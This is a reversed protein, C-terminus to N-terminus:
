RGVKREGKLSPILFFLVGVVLVAGLLGDLIFGSNSYYSASFIPPFFPTGYPVNATGNSFTIITFLIKIVTWAATQM